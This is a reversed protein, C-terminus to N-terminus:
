SGSSNLAVHGLDTAKKADYNCHEVTFVIWGMKMRAIAVLFNLNRDFCESVMRAPFSGGRARPSTMSHALRFWAASM